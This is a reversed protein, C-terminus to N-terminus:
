CGVGGVWGMGQRPPASINILSLQVGTASAVAAGADGEAEKELLGTIGVGATVVGAAAGLVLFTGLVTFLRRRGKNRDTAKMHGGFWVEPLLCYSSIPCSHSGIRNGNMHPAVLVRARTRLRGPFLM